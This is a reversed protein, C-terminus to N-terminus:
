MQRATQVGPGSGRGRIPVMTQDQSSGPRGFRCNCRQRGAPRQETKCEQGASPSPYTQYSDSNLFLVLFTISLSVGYNLSVLRSEPIALPKDFLIRVASSPLKKLESPLPWLEIPEVVCGFDTLAAGVTEGDRCMIYGRFLRLDNDIKVIVDDNLAPWLLRGSLNWRYRGSITSTSNRPIAM